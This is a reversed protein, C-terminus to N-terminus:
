ENNFSASPKLIGLSGYFIVDNILKKAICRNTPDMKKLDGGLGLVYHDVDDFQEQQVKTLTDTTMQLLDSADM